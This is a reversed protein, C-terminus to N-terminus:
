FKASLSLTYERPPSGYAVLRGFALTANRIFISKNLANTVGFRLSFKDEADSLKVATNLMTYAPQRVFNDVEFYYDGSRTATLNFALNGGMFPTTYDAAITGVFKRAFPM